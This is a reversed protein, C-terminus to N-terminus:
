AIARKPHSPMLCPSVCRWATSGHARCWISEDARREFQLHTTIWSRWGEPVFFVDSGIVIARM